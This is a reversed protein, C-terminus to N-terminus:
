MGLSGRSRNFFVTCCQELLGSVFINFNSIRFISLQQMEVSCHLMRKSKSTDQVAIM